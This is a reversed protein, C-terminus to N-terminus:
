TLISTIFSQYNFSLTIKEILRDSELKQSTVLYPSRVELWQDVM